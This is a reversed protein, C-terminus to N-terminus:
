RGLPIGVGALGGVRVHAARPGFPNVGLVQRENPRLKGPGQGFARAPVVPHAQAAVVTLVAPKQALSHGFYGRHRAFRHPAPVAGVGVHLVHAPHLLLQFARALVERGQGVVNGLERPHGVGRAMNEPVVPLPVVVRAQVQRGHLAPAPHLHVVRRQGLAHVRAVQSADLRALRPFVGKRQPPVVAFEPPKQAPGPGDAVRAPGNRAPEAGIGVHGLQALQLQLQPGALLFQANLGFAQGLLYPRGQGVARHVKVVLARRRVQALRHLLVAGGM